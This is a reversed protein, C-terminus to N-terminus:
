LGYQPLGKYSSHFVKGVVTKIVSLLVGKGQTLAYCLNWGLWLNGLYAEEM